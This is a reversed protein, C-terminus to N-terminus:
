RKTNELSLAIEPHDQSTKRIESEQYDPLLFIQHASELDWSAMSFVSQARSILESYLEQNIIDRNLQQVKRALLFGVKNEKSNIASESELNTVITLLKSYTARLVDDIQAEEMDLLQSGFLGLCDVKFM